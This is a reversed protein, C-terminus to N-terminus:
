VPENKLVQMSDAVNEEIQPSRGSQRGLLKTVLRASSILGLDIVDHLLNRVRLLILTQVMGGLQIM